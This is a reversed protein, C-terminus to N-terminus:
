LFKKLMPKLWCHEVPPIPTGIPSRPLNQRPIEGSEPHILPPPLALSCSSLFSFLPVSNIFCCGDPAPSVRDVRCFFSNSCTTLRLPPHISQVFSFLVVGCRVCKRQRLRMAPEEREAPDWLCIQLIQEVSSTSTEPGTLRQPCCFHLVAPCAPSPISLRPFHSTPLPDFPVM